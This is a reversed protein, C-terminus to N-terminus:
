PGPSSAPAAAFGSEGLVLTKGAAFMWSAVEMGDALRDALLPQVEVVVRFSDSVVEGARNRYTTERARALRAAEARAEAEDAASLVHIALELLPAPADPAQVELAFLVSVSYLPM